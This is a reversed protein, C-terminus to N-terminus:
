TSRSRLQTPKWGRALRQAEAIQEPTMLVTVQERSRRAVDDGRAAALNLWMHAFVYDQPVGDGTAYALGLSRQGFADGQDAEARFQRALEASDLQLWHTNADATLPPGNVVPSPTPRVGMPPERSLLGKVDNNYAAVVQDVWNHYRKRATLLTYVSLPLVMVCVVGLPVLLRPGAAVLVALLGLVAIVALIIQPSTPKASAYAEVRARERGHLYPAKKKWVDAGGTTVIQRGVEVEQEATLIPPNWFYLTYRIPIFM